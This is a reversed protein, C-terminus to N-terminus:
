SQKMAAVFEEIAKSDSAGTVIAKMRTRVSDLVNVALYIREREPVEEPKTEFLRKVMAARIEAFTSETEALESRTREARRREADTM